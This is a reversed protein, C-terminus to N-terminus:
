SHLTYSKSSIKGSGNHQLAIPVSLNRTLASTKDMANYNTVMMSPKSYEMKM